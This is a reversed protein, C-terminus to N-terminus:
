EDLYYQDRIEEQTLAVSVGNVQRKNFAYKALGPYTQRMRQEWRSKWAAGEPKVPWNRTCHEIKARVCLRNCNDHHFGQQYAPSLPLKWEKSVFASSRGIQM